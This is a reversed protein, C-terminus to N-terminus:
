EDALRTYADRLGAANTYANRRVMDLRAQRHQNPLLLGGSTRSYITIYEVIFRDGQFYEAQRAYYEAQAKAAEYEGQIDYGLLDENGVAEILIRHDRIDLEAALILGEIAKVTDSSKLRIATFGRSILERDHIYERLRQRVRQLHEIDAKLETIAANSQNKLDQHYLKFSWDRNM